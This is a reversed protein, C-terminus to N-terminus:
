EWERPFGMPGTMPDWNNGNGHVDRSRVACPPPKYDSGIKATFYTGLIITITLAIFTKIRKKDFMQSINPNPVRRVLSTRSQSEHIAVNGGMGMAM